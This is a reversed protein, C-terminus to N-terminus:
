DQPELASRYRKLKEVYHEANWLVFQVEEDTLQRVV